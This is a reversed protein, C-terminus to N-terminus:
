VAESGLPTNGDDLDLATALRATEIVVESLGPTRFAVPLPDDDHDFVLVTDIANSWRSSRARILAAVRAAEIDGAEIVFEFGATLHVQGTIYFTAM